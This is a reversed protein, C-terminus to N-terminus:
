AMLDGALIVIRSAATRTLDYAGQGVAVGPKYDANVRLRYAKVLSHHLLDAHWVRDPWRRLEWRVKGPLEAHRISRKAQEYHSDLHCLVAHAGNHAAYYARSVASRWQTDSALTVASHLNRRAEELWQRATAM